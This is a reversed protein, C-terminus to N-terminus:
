YLEFSLRLKAYWYKVPIRIAKKKKKKMIVRGPSLVRWNVHKADGKKGLGAIKM